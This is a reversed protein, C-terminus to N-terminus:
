LLRGKGGETRTTTREIKRDKGERPDLECAFAAVAFFADGHRCVTIRILWKYKM